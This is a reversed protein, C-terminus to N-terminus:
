RRRVLRASDGSNPPDQAFRGQARRAVWSDMVKVDIKRKAGASLSIAYVVFGRHQIFDLIKCTRLPFVKVDAQIGSLVLQDEGGRLIPLDFSPNYPRIEALRRCDGICGKM